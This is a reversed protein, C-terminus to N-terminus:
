DAPAAIVSAPTSDATETDPMRLRQGTLVPLALLLTAGVWAMAQINALHAQVVIAVSFIALLISLVIEEDGMEAAKRDLFALLLFGMAPLMAASAPFDRYRGDFVLGLSVALAIALALLRFLGLAHARGTLDFEGAVHRRIRELAAPGDTGAGAVARALAGSLSIAAFFLLLWIAGGAGWEVLSRSSELLYRGFLTLLTGGTLGAATLTAWGLPANALKEGRSRRRLLTWGLPFLGLLVSIGLYIQWDPLEVVPGTLSFKPQRKVDYLGWNGGVTGENYRKWPQDFAEILNYDVGAQSAASVFYRMFAAQNVRGPAAGERQRGASPWGTEGILLTVNPMEEQVHRYIDMVHPVAYQIAIPDDEWYPLIHITAFNVEAAIQKNRMWFEWVDAYTVPIETRAKVYRITEILRDAPLEGRLLVENGVVIARVTGPHANALEIAKDLQLKNKDPQSGIWAGLLVRLGFQQAIQPVMELGQDVAYTRVCRTQQSLAEMDEAIQEPPIVIDPQFPSQGERFPAYSVCAFRGGSVDPLSVPQSKAYWSYLGGVAGAVLVTLVTLRRFLSAPPRSPGGALLHSDSQTM